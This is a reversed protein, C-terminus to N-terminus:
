SEQTDGRAVRPLQISDHVCDRRRRMTVDISGGHARVIERTIYLGLGLGRAMGRQYTSGRFPEFLEPLIEAPVYGDNQIQVHMM